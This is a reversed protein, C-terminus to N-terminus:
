RIDVRLNEGNLVDTPKVRIIVADAKNAPPMADGNPIQAAEPPQPTPAKPNRLSYAAGEIPFVNEGTASAAHTSATRSSILFAKLRPDKLVRMQEEETLDTWVKPVFSYYGAIASQGLQRGPEIAGPNENLKIDKKWSLDSKAYSSIFANLVAEATSHALTEAYVPRALALLILPIPILRKM